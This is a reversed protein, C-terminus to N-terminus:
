FTGGSSNIIDAFDMTEITMGRSDLNRFMTDIDASRLSDILDNFDFKISGNAFNHNYNMQYDITMNGHNPFRNRDEETRYMEELVAVLIAHKFKDTPM